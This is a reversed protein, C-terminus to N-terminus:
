MLQRSPVYRTVPMIGWAPAHMEEGMVQARLLLRTQDKKIREYNNSFLTEAACPVPGITFSPKKMTSQKRLSANAITEVSGSRNTKRAPSGPPSRSTEKSKYNDKFTKTKQNEIHITSKM